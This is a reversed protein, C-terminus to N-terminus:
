CYINVEQFPLTYQALYNDARPTMFYELIIKMSTNYFRGILTRHKNFTCNQNSTQRTLTCFIYEYTKKGNSWAEVNDVIKQPFIIVIIAQIKTRSLFIFLLQHALWCVGHEWM